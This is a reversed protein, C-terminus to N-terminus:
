RKRRPKHPEAAGSATLRELYQRIQEPSMGALREEPPLREMLKRQEEPTLRPFYKKAYDRGFDEMTYSMAFGEGQFRKFLEGLLSSTQESRRRYASRGFGVLEPSASFL